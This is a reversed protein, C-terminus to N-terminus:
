RLRTGIRGGGGGGGGGRGSGGGGGGGGGPGGVSGGTEFRDRRRDATLEHAQAFTLWSKWWGGHQHVCVCLTWHM